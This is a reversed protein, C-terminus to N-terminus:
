QDDTKQIEPKETKDVTLTPGTLGEAPRAVFRFNTRYQDGVPNEELRFVWGQHPSHGPMGDFALYLPYDDIIIKQHRDPDPVPSVNLLRAIDTTFGEKGGGGTEASYAWQCRALRILLNYALKPDAVNPPATESSGSGRKSVLVYGAGAFLLLGM